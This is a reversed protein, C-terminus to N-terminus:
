KNKNLKFQEAQKLTKFEKSHLQQDTKNYNTFWWLMFSSKNKNTLIKPKM